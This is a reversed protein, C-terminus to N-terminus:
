RQPRGALERRRVGGRIDEGTAADRRDKRREPEDPPSVADSSKSVDPEDQAVAPPKVLNGRGQDPCKGQKLLERYAVM